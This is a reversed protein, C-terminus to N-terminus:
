RRQKPSKTMLSQSPTMLPLATSTPPLLSLMRSVLLSLRPLSVPLKMEQNRSKTHMGLFLRWRIFCVSSGVERWNVRLMTNTLLHMQTLITCSRKKTSAERPEEEVGEPRAVKRPQIPPHSPVMITTSTTTTLTMTSHPGNPLTMNMLKIEMEKKTFCTMMMMPMYMMVHDLDNIAGSAVVREKVALLLPQVVKTLMPLILM